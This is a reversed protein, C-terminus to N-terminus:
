MKHGSDYREASQIGGVGEDCGGGDDGNRRVEGGNAGVDVDDRWTVGATAIQMNITQELILCFRTNM